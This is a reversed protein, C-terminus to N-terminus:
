ASGLAAKLQDRWEPLQLRYTQVLRENSLVSYAPRRAPTPYDATTIPTVRRTVIPGGGLATSLWPNADPLKAAEELIASAFAHWNTTGGATVHFTGTPPTDGAAAAAHRELMSSTARAIERAWTPAGFQDSVIRLEERQSALRLITLLFNKGRTAYVWATRLILHRCGSDRIANEGNLKTQGYVNLPNTLDDEGYPSEKSGDFVYDTSYHVLLANLEAAEAAMAAPAQANIARAKDAEKEALDVATYAAANVIIRPRTDHIIRAVDSPRTLDFSARDPVVVEGVRPLIGALEHGVQGSGGILLIRPKM